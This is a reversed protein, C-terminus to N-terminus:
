TVIRNIFLVYLRKYINILKGLNSLKKIADALLKTESGPGISLLKPGTTPIGNYPKISIEGAPTREFYTYSEEDGIQTCGKIRLIGKPLNNCITTILNESKLRPLDVSCSSWHAKNHDMSKIKNETPSIKPIVLVDLDKMELIDAASNYNKLDQVVSSIEKKSLNETHTM